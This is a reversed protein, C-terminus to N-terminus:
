RVVTWKARLTQGSAFTLRAVYTGSALGAPEWRVAQRGVGAVWEFPRVAQLRGAADYLEIRVRDPGAVDFGFVAGGAGYRPNPSASAIRSRPVIEVSEVGTVQPTDTGLAMVHLQNIAGVWSWSTGDTTSAVEGTSAAAYLESGDVDVLASMGSATLASVATWSTGFDISRYIEGTATLLYLSSGLRRLSAANSAPVAGVMSWTTGQDLSQAVEGTEALAYLRGLSGRAISAWGSGALAALATFTAGGDSSSYVTGTRTLALLAGFPGVAFGAVDNAAIAGTPAWSVGADTSRYISGSRTALYLDSPTTGAALGAGDSVPLTSRIQWSAGADSSVYLEGTDVLGFLTAAWVPASSMGTGVVVALLWALTRKM